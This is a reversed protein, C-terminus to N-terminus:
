IFSLWVCMCLFIGYALFMLSFLSVFVTFSPTMKYVLFCGPVHLSYYQCPSVFLSLVFLLMTPSLCQPCYFKSSLLFSERPGVCTQLIFLFLLVNEDFHGILCRSRLLYRSTKRTEKGNRGEELVAIKNGQPTVMGTWKCPLGVKKWVRFTTIHGLGVLQHM